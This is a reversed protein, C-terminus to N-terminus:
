SVIKYHMLVYGKERAVVRDAERALSELDDSEEAEKM